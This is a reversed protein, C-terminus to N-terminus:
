VIKRFHYDLDQRFYKFCLFEYLKDKKLNLSCLLKQIIRKIKIIVLNFITKKFKKIFYLIIM